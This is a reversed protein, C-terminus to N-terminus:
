LTNSVHMHTRTCGLTLLAPTLECFIRPAHRPHFLLMGCAPAHSGNPRKRLKKWPPPSQRKRGGPGLHVEM